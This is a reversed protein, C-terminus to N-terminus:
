RARYITPNEIRYNGGSNPIPALRGVVIVPVSPVETGCCLGSDDGSCTFRGEGEAGLMLWRRADSRVTINGQCHNCCDDDDGCAMETCGGEAHLTGLVQVTQGALQLRRDWVGDLPEGRVGTPVVSSVAQPAACGRRAVCLGGGRAHGTVGRSANVVHSVSLSVDAAAGADRTAAPARVVPARPRRQAQADARHLALPAVALTAFAALALPRISATHTM